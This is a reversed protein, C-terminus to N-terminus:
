NKILVPVGISVLQKLKVDDSDILRVCGHSPNGPILSPEDTGHIGVISGDPFDTLQAYDSTGFAWTGYFPDTSSFAETIWFQGTPTPSDPAGAGVPATFIQKGQRYLTLVDSARNVVIQEDTSEFNGLATRPVWGVHGNPRMPVRLEVWPTQTVVRIRLKQRVKKRVKKWVKTKVKERQGHVTKYTVKEVGKYTTQYVTRYGTKYSIGVDWHERLLLYTQASEDDPTTWALNKIVTAKTNPSTRIPAITEAEAFRTHTTENSLLVDKQYVVPRPEPPKPLPSPKPEPKPKVTITKIPTKKTPTTKVPTTPTTTVPTTTACPSTTTTAPTTTTSPTTTSTTAPCPTTSTTPTTPTGAPNTTTSPTTTTPTTETPTTTTSTDGAAGAPVVAAVAVVATASILGLVRRPGRM